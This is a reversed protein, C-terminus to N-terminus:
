GHTIGKIYDSIIDQDQQSLHLYLKSRRMLFDEGTKVFEHQCVFELESKLVTPVIFDTHNNRLIVLSESGYAYVLREIMAKDLAPYNTQIRDILIEPDYDGGILYESDTWPKTQKQFAADILKMAHEALARYTTIKGGFISLIKGGGHNDEILKYDRTITRADSSNDDYLARVGSYTSIIDEVNILTEFNNQVIDLLYNLENNSIEAQYPDGTYNEETTGILTFDNEYPIAFVIRKDPQQLIYAHDGDFLKPVIIHSGKILKVNPTANTGLHSQDLFSRVWPGSANVIYQATFQQTDTEIHWITSRYNLSMCKTHSLITAGKDHASRANAVVLRSDEVWADSYCLAKRNKHKLGVGYKSSSLDIGRSSKFKTYHGTLGLADYLYLGLRIFWYPRIYKEHPLIFEMPWIIHPAINILKNREILSERVLRFEYQELYRLGGHILKTSKSSTASALDGQELLLVTYGRGAADRAIGCGNVGGGIICIDFQELKSEM